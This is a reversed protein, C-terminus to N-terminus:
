GSTRVAKRRAVRQKNIRDKNAAWWTRQHERAKEPDAARKAAQRSLIKDKNKAYYLRKRERDGERVLELNADRWRRSNERAREPHAARYKRAREGGKRAKEPNADRWARTITRECETCAHNSVHREAVHGHECLKGTFYRKLGLAKAEARSILHPPDVPMRTESSGGLSMLKAVADLHPLRALPRTAQVKRQPGDAPAGGSKRVDIAGVLVRELHRGCKQM